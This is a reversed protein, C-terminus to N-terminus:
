FDGHATLYFQSTVPMQGYVSEQSGSFMRLGAKFKMPYKDLGLSADFMFSSDAPSYLISAQPLYEEGQYSWRLFLNDQVLHPNAMAETSWALNGQVAQQPAPSGLLL